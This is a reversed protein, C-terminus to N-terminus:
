DKKEERGYCDKFCKRTFIRCMFKPIMTQERSFSFTVKNLLSSLPKQGLSFIVGSITKIAKMSNALKLELKTIKGLKREKM